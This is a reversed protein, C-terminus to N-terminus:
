SQIQKIKEENIQSTNEAVSMDLLKSKLINVADISSQVTNKLSNMQPPIEYQNELQVSSSEFRHIM